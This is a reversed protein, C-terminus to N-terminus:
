ADTSRGLVGDLRQELGDRAPVAAGVVQEALARLRRQGRQSAARLADFAEDEDYGYVAALVGKAQDVVSRSSLADALQTNVGRRVSEVFADGLLVFRGVLADGHHEVHFLVVQEVGDFGVVRVIRADGDPAERADAAAPAPHLAARVAPRDHPAVHALLADEAPVVDGPELGLLAFVGATWTWTGDPDRRCTGVPLPVTWPLYDPTM